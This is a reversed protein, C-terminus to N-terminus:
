GRKEGLAEAASESLATNINELEGSMWDYSARRLGEQEQETFNEQYDTSNEILDNFDWATSEYNGFDSDSICIYINLLVAYIATFVSYQQRLGDAYALCCGINTAAQMIDYLISSSQIDFTVTKNKKIMKVWYYTDQILQDVKTFLELRHEDDFIESYDWQCLDQFLDMLEFWRIGIYLEEELAYEKEM